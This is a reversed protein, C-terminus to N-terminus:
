HTTEYMVDLFQNVAVTYNAFQNSFDGLYWQSEFEQDPKFGTQIKGDETEINIYETIREYQIVIKNNFSKLWILSGDRYIHLIDFHTANIELVSFITEWGGPQYTINEFQVIDLKLGDKLASFLISNDLYIPGDLESPLGFSECDFKWSESNIIYWIELEFISYNFYLHPGVSYGLDRVETIKGVMTTMALLYSSRENMQTALNLPSEFDWDFPPYLLDISTTNDQSLSDLGLFVGSIASTLFCALLFGLLINKLAPNLKM